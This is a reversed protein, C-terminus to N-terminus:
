QTSNMDREVRARIEEAALLPEKNSFALEREAQELSVGPEAPPPAEGRPMREPEDGRHVIGKVNRVNAFSYHLGRPLHDLVAPEHHVCLAMAGDARGELAGDVARRVEREGPEEGEDMLACIGCFHDGDARIVNFQDAM